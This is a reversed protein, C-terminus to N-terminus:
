KITRRFAIFALRHFGFDRLIQFAIPIPTDINAGIARWMHECARKRLSARVIRSIVFVNPVLIKIVVVKFNGSIICHIARNIATREFRTTPFM